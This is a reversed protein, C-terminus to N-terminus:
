RVPAATRVNGVSTPPRRRRAEDLSRDVIARDPGPRVRETQTRAAKVAEVSCGVQAAIENRSQTSWRPGYGADDYLQPFRRRRRAIDGLSTAAVAQRVAKESCVLETALEAYTRRTELQARLWDRMM